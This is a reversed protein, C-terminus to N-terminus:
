WAELKHAQVVPEGTILECFLMEHLNVRVMMRKAGIVEVPTGDNALIVVDDEVPLTKLIEILDQPKM